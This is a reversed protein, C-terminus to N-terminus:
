QACPPPETQFAERGKLAAVAAISYHLHAVVDLTWQKPAHAM